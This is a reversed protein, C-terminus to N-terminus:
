DFLYSKVVGFVERVYFNPKLYPHTKAPLGYSVFGNRDALMKARYVHFSNTVVLVKKYESFGLKNLVERTYKFNESTNTSKDEKIIREKDIGKDILFNEMAEAESITEGIGQGGSVVVKINKNNKLYEEASKLREYLSLTIKDGKLGAGLVVVCNVEKSEESVEGNYIITCLLISFATIGVILLLYFINLIVKYKKKQEDSLKNRFIVIGIMFMSIAIWFGSFSIPGFFLLGIFYAVSLGSLSILFKDLRRLDRLKKM